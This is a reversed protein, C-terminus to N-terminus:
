TGRFSLSFTKIKQRFRAKNWSVLYIHSRRSDSVAAYCTRGDPTRRCITGSKLDLQVSPETASTPGRGVSLFLLCRTEPSRLGPLQRLSRPRANAVLIPVILRCLFM